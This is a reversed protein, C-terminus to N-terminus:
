TRISIQRQKFITIRQMTQLIILDHFRINLYAIPTYFCSLSVQTERKRTIRKPSSGLVGVNFTNHEVSQALPDGHTNTAKRFRTCLYSIIKFSCFLKRKKVSKTSFFQRKHTFHCESLHNKIFIPMKTKNTTIYSFAM